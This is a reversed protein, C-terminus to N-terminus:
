EAQFGVKEPIPFIQKGPKEEDDEGVKKSNGSRAVDANGYVGHGAREDNLINGVVGSEINEKGKHAAKKEKEDALVDNHGRPMYFIVQFVGVEAVEFFEWPSKVICGACAFEDGPSGIVQIGYSIKEAGADHVGEVSKEPKEESKHGHNGKM